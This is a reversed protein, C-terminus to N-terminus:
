GATPPRRPVITITFDGGEHCEAEVIGDKMVFKRWCVTCLFLHEVRGIRCIPRQPREAPNEVM